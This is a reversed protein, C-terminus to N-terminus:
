RREPKVADVATAGLVWPCNLQVILASDLDRSAFRVEATM